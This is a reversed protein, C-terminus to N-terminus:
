RRVRVPIKEKITYIVIPQKHADLYQVQDDLLDLKHKIPDIEYQIKKDVSVMKQQELYVINIAVWGSFVTICLLCCILIVYSLTKLFMLDVIDVKISPFRPLGFSLGFGKAYKKKFRHRSPDTINM